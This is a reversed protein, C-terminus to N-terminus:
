TVTNASPVVVTVTVAVSTAPFVVTFDKWTVTTSVVGGTSVTGLSRVASAVLAAPAITVKAASARSATDATAIVYERNDPLMNASPRVVTCTVARSSAPLAASPSNATSTRSVVAGSSVTGAAKVASAVLAAPAGTVNLATAVSATDVGDIVYECSGPVIKATPRVVTCTVARSSAPLTELPSNATSTTSVVGGTNVTGLSM